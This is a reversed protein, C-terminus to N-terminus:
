TPVGSAAGVLTLVTVEPDARLRLPLKSTGIGPHVFLRRGGEEVLGVGFRDGFRSPIAWRRLLPVNVQGAHTHGALTLAVRAPVRPFVDPSHTIAIVPAGPPVDRLAAGVDAVGSAADGIAALWLSTGGRRLEVAENHLVRVGAAELARRVREGGARFDHNGLLAFVGLPARLAALREAAVEPAVPEGGVVNPDVVDGLVVVLEPAAARTEAVVRDLMEAGLQPAGAHLDALVGVTLGDLAPPWGPLPVIRPRVVLRRAGRVGARLLVLAAAAAAIAAVGAAIAVRRRTATRRGGM